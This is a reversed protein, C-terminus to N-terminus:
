KAGREGWIRHAHWVLTYFLGSVSGYDLVFPAWIWRRAAEVPLTAVGIAGAIGGVLPVWSGARRRLVQGIWFVAGNMAALWAFIVLLPVAVVWRGWIM